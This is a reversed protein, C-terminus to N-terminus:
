PCDELFEWLVQTFAEPREAPLMHAADPFEVRRGRPLRASDEHVHHLNLFLGDQLGTIVLVPLALSEYPLRWDASRCDALLRYHGHEPSLPTYGGDGLSAARNAALWEANFLLPAYLDRLLELGGVEATRLVADNIWALKPGPRRLTNVLVLGHTSAGGLVARAAFLGGISLGVLVPRPPQVAELLQRADAIILDADLRLGPSFPSGAQGRFNWTLTGHGAQRLAPAIAAEWMDLSGTLANFFVVTHGTDDRPPTYEYRLADIEGLALHPM